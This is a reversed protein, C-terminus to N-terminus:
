WLSRKNNKLATHYEEWERNRQEQEELTLEKEKGERIRQRYREKEEDAGDTYANSDIILKM